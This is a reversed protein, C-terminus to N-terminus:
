SFFTLKVKVEKSDLFLEIFPLPLTVYTRNHHGLRVLRLSSSMDCQLIINNFGSDCSLHSNMTGSWMWTQDCLQPHEVVCDQNSGAMCGYLATSIDNLRPHCVWRLTWLVSFRLPSDSHILSRQLVNGLAELVCLDLRLPRLDSCHNQDNM